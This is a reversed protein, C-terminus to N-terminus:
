ATAEYRAPPRRTRSSRRHQENNDESISQSDKDRTNPERTETGYRNPVAGSPTQGNVRTYWTPTNRGSYKWLRNRHVVKPKLGPGQQIRYVLDNIKKTVVYPGQWPKSLKPSVGKKRQPNHLWVADGEQLEKEFVYSDYHDKMKDSRMQLHERAFNHIREMRDCLKQVYESKHVPVEGSPRGIFLDIPLRLDRGMMVKAPTVGTTDHVATRYAMLLLPIHEDWDRQNQDVFKSLQAELTRNFREVMGDSQPHLPTTRTKKVGLLRCMESFVTSEFNRGQDSHLCLPVGFRSVVERVLIEAVTTAEQNTMPFAETWKSFYDAVVLVYRNGSESEPLPGLVDVAIREMPAGVNYQGMPARVARHPGRKSACTDCAHCWRKVDQTCGKWYFRERIRQLTKSIGLHGSTESEHLQQLVEERLKRPLLLQWVTSDGSPTEWLRYVVGDKLRLSDWQAWYLKTAENLSAISSWPPRIGGKKLIRAIPGITDDEMQVDQLQESTWIPVAQWSVRGVAKPAGTLFCGDDMPSTNNASQEKAELHACHKCSSALCPRRSLADANGHQAGARHMIQFDYHQLREIWRAIQGEPNRFNLLWKLAAHDTRVTFQRGYLYHHFHHVSKVVALLERRTVCYNREPRSLTCSYYAVVREEGEQIQSLVAGIGHASADTDLVFHADPNPYCLIPVETLAKKLATFSRELDDNWTSIQMHDTCQHLPHALDAFNPVFRRYISCLGLFRRVETINSPRPWDKVAQLKEPDTAVGAESVIHGLFKVQRQLLVCKKPSLKLKAERLRLLVTRLNHIHGEFTRGPILIDDLYILCVTLPLGALVKEMLREFTAPANCLGFPMVKFQWLGRGTSFATKERDSPHVEVQWYGSKLDLTSFWTAGSLAELTDDIRPLPYSDKRTVSNLKRYDVCFRTTGDKKKVLVIPSAWPSSSPEIVGETAMDEIAKSADQQKSLPLRRPPQRIPPADGTDIRHQVSDNRGLDHSGQSFVDSFECLLNRVQIRQAPTLDHSTAQWLERLHPPLDPAPQRYGTDERLSLVSHVPECVAISTGKKIRKEEDSINLIRVPITPQQLDVLTRGTMVGDISHSGDPELIGCRRDACRGLIKVTALSESHPPLDVSRELIVRCCPRLIPQPNLRQMPVEEDGIWLSNDKLNVLCGQPALFDLGLICQDHIDAIWFQQLVETSGVKVMLECRGHIPAREGTVTRLYSTVPKLSDRKERSLIDPRVVSIDSGTDITIHCPYGDISGTM